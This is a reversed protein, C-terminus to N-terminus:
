VVVRRSAARGASVTRRGPERQFADTKDILKRIDADRGSQVAEYLLPFIGKIFVSDGRPLGRVSDTPAFWRVGDGVVVPFLKLMRGSQLMAILQVKEDAEVFAKLASDNRDAPLRLMGALRYDRGTGFFDVLAATKGSGISRRVTDQGVRIMREFQWQEPYFIWGALM